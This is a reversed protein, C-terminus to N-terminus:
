RLVGRRRMARTYVLLLVGIAFIVVCFIVAGVGGGMAKLGDTLIYNHVMSLVMGVFSALFLHFALGRRLLLLVSGVVSGWTAIGWAAVVWAPFSSFYALQEPTFGKLYGANRTVTMTFDMAGVANWLLSLGGVIWLHRPTTPSPPTIDAM